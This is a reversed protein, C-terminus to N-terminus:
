YLHAGFEWFVDPALDPAKSSGVVWRGRSDQHVVDYKCDIGFSLKSKVEPRVPPSARDDECLFPMESLGHGFAAVLLAVRAANSVPGTGVSFLVYRHCAVM